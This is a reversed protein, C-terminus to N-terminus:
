LNQGFWLWLWKGLFSQKSCNTKIKRVYSITILQHDRLGLRTLSNFPFATLYFALDAVAGAVTLPYRLQIFGSDLLPFAWFLSSGCTLLGAM